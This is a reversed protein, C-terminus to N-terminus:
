VKRRQNPTGLTFGEGDPTGSGPLPSVSDEEFQEALHALVGDIVEKWFYVPSKMLWIRYARVSLEVVGPVDFIGTVFDNQEDETLVAYDEKDIQTQYVPPDERLHIYVSSDSPSRDNYSFELKYLLAM